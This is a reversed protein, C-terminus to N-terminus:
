RDNIPDTFDNILRYAKLVGQNKTSPIYSRKVHWWVLWVWTLIKLLADKTVLYM